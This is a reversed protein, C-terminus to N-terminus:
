ITVIETAYHVIITQFILKNGKESRKLLTEEAHM